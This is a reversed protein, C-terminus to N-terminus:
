DSWTLHATPSVSTFHTVSGDNVAPVDPSGIAASLVMALSVLLFLIAALRALVVLGSQSRTLRQNLM